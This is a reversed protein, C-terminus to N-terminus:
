TEGVAAGDREFHVRVLLMQEAGLESARDARIRQLFELRTEEREVVRHARTRLAVAEALDSEEIRLPHDRMRRQRERCTRHLAPVPAILKVELHQLAEGREVKSSRGSFTRLIRSNPEPLCVMGNEYM